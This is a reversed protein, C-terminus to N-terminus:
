TSERNSEDENERDAKFVRKILADFFEEEKEKTIPKGNLMIKKDKDEEFIGRGISTQGGVPLYGKSIDKLVLLLLGIMWNNGNDTKRNRRVNIRLVLNGGVYDKETFLANTQASSEFRSIATRSMTLPHSGNIVSESIIVASSCSKNKEVYGFMEDICHETEPMGLNKLFEAARHRIAGAFSTGPVVPKGDATIHVFDPEGKKASYQRISIGGTLKLYLALHDFSQGKDMDELFTDIPLSYGKSRKEVKEWDYADKYELINEKTFDRKWISLIDLEGYGRTKKGGLRIDHSRLGNLVLKIERQMEEEDDNRRVVLEITFHGCIGTDVAEMDFKSRTLAVKDDSLKVCDRIVIKVDQTKKEDIAKLGEDAENSKMKENEAQEASEGINNYTFTLDSIFSSSMRSQSSDDDTNESGFIYSGGNLNILYARLAGALSSGPVFPRGDYDQLVDRDTIGEDGSSVSLPSALRIQIYYVTKKLVPNEGM